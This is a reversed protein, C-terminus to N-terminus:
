AISTCLEIAADVVCPRGMFVIECEELEGSNNVLELMIDQLEHSRQLM